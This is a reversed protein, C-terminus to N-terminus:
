ESLMVLGAILCVGGVGEEASAVILTATSCPPFLVQFLQLFAYMVELATSRLSADLDLRRGPLYRAFIRSQTRQQPPMANRIRLELTIQLSPDAFQPNRRRDSHRRSLNIHTAMAIALFVHGDPNYLAFIRTSGRLGAAIHPKLRLIRDVCMQLMYRRWGQMSM